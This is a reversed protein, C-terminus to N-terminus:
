EWFSERIQALAEAFACATPYRHSKHKSMAKRCVAELRDIAPWERTGLGPPDDRGIQDLVALATEGEFPPRGSLTEYLLAGLGYVDTREDIERVWGNAQEPAMYAPTGVIEWLAESAASRGLGFDTLVVRGGKELLVNSPKLDCHLVGRDHAHAVARAVTEVARLLPAKEEHIAELLTRGHIYELAIYSSGWSECSGAELVAIINPHRLTATIRAERRLRDRAESSCREKRLVKLAVTRRFVSDQAEYVLGMGGEAIVRELEYKGIGKCGPAEGKVAVLGDFEDPIRELLM